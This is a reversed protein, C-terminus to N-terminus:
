NKAKNIGGITDKNEVKNIEAKTNIKKRKYKKTQKATGKRIESIPDGRVNTKWVKEKELIIM